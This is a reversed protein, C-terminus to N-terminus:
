DMTRKREDIDFKPPLATWLVGDVAKIPGIVWAWCWRRCKNKGLKGHKGAALATGAYPLDCTTDPDAESLKFVCPIRM